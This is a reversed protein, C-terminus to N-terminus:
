RRCCSDVKAANAIEEALDRISVEYSPAVNYAEGSVGRLLLTVYAFSADIEFLYSRVQAGSSNMVIKDGSVAKNLFEATVRSDKNSFSPGFVHCQRAVVVDVEYQFKYSACLSEGAKKALPYCSRPNMTDIFGRGHMEDFAVKGPEGQGYVEGSSIYLVRGSGQNKIFRLAGEIGQINSLLIGTPDSVFSAPDGYGACQILFDIHEECQIDETAEYKLYSVNEFGNSFCEIFKNQDRCGALIRLSLGFRQSLYALLCVMSSGLQGTAGTILITKNKILFIDPYNAEVFDGIRLLCAQYATSGNVNSM